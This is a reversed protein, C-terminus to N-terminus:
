SKTDADSKEAEHQAHYSISKQILYNVAAGIIGIGFIAYFITFIKGLTSTIEVSSYGVTTLTMVSFYASDLISLNEIKSYFLTGLIITFFAVTLIPAIQPKKIHNILTNTKNKKSM